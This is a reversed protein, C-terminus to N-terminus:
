LLLSMGTLEPRPILTFATGWYKPRQYRPSSLNAAKCAANVVSAFSLSATNTTSGSSQRTLDFSQPTPYAAQKSKKSEHINERVYTKTRRTRNHISQNPSLQPPLEPLSVLWVRSSSAPPENAQSHGLPCLQKNQAIQRLKCETNTSFHLSESAKTHTSRLSAIQSTRISERAAKDTQMKRVKSSTTPARASRFQAQRRKTHAHEARSYHSSTSSNTTCSGSWMAM